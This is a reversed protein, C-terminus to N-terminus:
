QESASRRISADNSARKAPLVGHSINGNKQQRGKIAWPIIVLPRKQMSYAAVGM